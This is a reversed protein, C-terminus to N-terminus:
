AARVFMNGAYNLFGQADAAAVNFPKGRGPVMYRTGTSAGRMGFSGTRPGRYVISVTTSGVELIRIGASADAEGPRVGTPISGGCCM